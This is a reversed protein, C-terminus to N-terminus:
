GHVWALAQEGGVVEAIGIFHGEVGACRALRGQRDPVLLAQRLADVPMIMEPVQEAQGDLRFGRHLVQPDAELHQGPEFFFDELM